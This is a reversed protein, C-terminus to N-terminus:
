VNASPRSKVAEFWARTMSHSEPVPIKILLMFECVIFSTIDAVTFRDSALYASQSLREELQQFFLDVRQRGRVALDPIRAFDVPGTIARDAKYSESNRLTEAAATFGQHECISNWMLVSAKEEAGEGMLPPDPYKDEIYAAIAINETLAIGTDTVLVPLTGRPNIALFEPKLQEGKSMDVQVKEIEVGKEAMLMRARRPSPPGTWDYLRM